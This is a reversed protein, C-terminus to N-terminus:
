EGLQGGASDAAHDIGNQVAYTASSYDASLTCAAIYADYSLITQDATCDPDVPTAAPLTRSWWPSARGVADSSASYEYGASEFPRSVSCGDNTVGGQTAVPQANAPTLTVTAVSDSPTSGTVDVSAVYYDIFGGTGAADCDTAGSIRAHQGVEWGEHGSSLPGPAVFAYAALVTMVRETVCFPLECQHFGPFNSHLM